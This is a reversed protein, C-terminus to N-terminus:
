MGYSRWAKAREDRLIKELVEDHAYDGCLFCYVVGYTLDVAKLFILIVTMRFIIVLSHLILHRVMLSCLKGASSYFQRANISLYFFIYPASPRM